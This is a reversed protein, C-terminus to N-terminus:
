FTTIHAQFLLNCWPSVISFSFQCWHGLVFIPRHTSWPWMVRIQMMAGDSCQSRAEGIDATKSGIFHRKTVHFNPWGLLFGFNNPRGNKVWYRSTNPFPNPSPGFHSGPILNIPNKGLLRWISQNSEINTSNSQCGCHCHWPPRAKSQVQVWHNYVLPCQLRHPYDISGKQHAEAIADQYPHSKNHNTTPLLLPYATSVDLRGFIESLRFSVRIACARTCIRRLISSCSIMVMLHAYKLSLYFNQWNGRFTNMSTYMWLEFVLNKSSESADCERRCWDVCSCLTMTQLVIIGCRGTGLWVDRWGNCLNHQYM